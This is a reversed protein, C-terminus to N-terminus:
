NGSGRSYLEKAQLIKESRQADVVADTSEAAGAVAVTVPQEDASM